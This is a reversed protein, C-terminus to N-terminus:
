QEEVPAKGTRKYEDENRRESGGNFGMEVVSEDGGEIEDKGGGKDDEKARGVPEVNCADEAGGACEAETVGKGGDNGPNGSTADTEDLVFISIGYEGPSKNTRGFTALLPVTSELMYQSPVVARPIDDQGPIEEAM